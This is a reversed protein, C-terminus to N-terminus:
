CSDTLSSIYCVEEFLDCCYGFVNIAFELGCNGIDM